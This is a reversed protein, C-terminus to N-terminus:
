IWIQLLWKRQLGKRVARQGVATLNLTRHHSAQFAHRVNLRSINKIITFHRFPAQVIILFIDRDFIGRKHLRTGEYGLSSSSVRESWGSANGYSFFILNSNRAISFGSVECSVWFVLPPLERYTGRWNGEIHVPSGSYKFFAVHAFMQEIPKRINSSNAESM